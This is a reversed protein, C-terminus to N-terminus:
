KTKSTESVVVREEEEEIEEEESSEYDVSLLDGKMSSLQMGQLVCLVNLVQCCARNWYWWHWPCLHGKWRFCTLTNVGTHITCVLDSQAEKDQEGGDPSGGGNRESYDLDKTSSGGMDWVRRQKERPKQPKPSKSHPLWLPIHHLPCLIDFHLFSFHTM